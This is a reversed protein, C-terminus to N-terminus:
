TRAELSRLLVEDRMRRSIRWPSRERVFRALSEGPEAGPAHGALVAALSAEPRTRDFFSVWPQDEFDAVLHPEDPLVVPVGFTAALHASGSNLIRDYPLVAVDAARYWRSLAEDAVFGQEFVVRVGAPLADRVASEQGDAVKGALLLVARSRASPEMADLAGLLRGIGKYRRIQGVFVVALDTEGIGFSDRAEARTWSQDYLGAYSPHPIRVLKDRPLEVWPLVADATMANMVHIVDAKEALLAMLRREQTEFKLEHPVANHLTWVISGGEAAFSVLADALATVRAAADSETAAKQVVPSTWHFHLISGPPQQRLMGILTVLKTCGVPEFGRALTALSVINVYPNDRWAPFTLLAPRVRQEAAAGAGGVTDRMTGRGPASAAGVENM